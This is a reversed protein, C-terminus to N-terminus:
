GVGKDWEWVYVINLQVSVKYFQFAYSVNMDHTM